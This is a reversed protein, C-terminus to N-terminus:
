LRVAGTLRARRVRSRTSSRTRVGARYAGEVSQVMKRMQADAQALEGIGQAQADNLRDITSELERAQTEAQTLAAQYRGAEELGFVAMGFSVCVSVVVFLWLLWNSNSRKSPTPTVRRANESGIDSRVFETPEAVAIPKNLDDNFQPEKRTM